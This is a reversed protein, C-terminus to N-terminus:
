AQNEIIREFEQQQTELASISTQRKDIYDLYKQIEQITEEPILSMNVLCGSKNENIRISPNNVLIKLIEIHNQKDLKEITKKINELSPTSVSTVLTTVTDAAVSDITTM